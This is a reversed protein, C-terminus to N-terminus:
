RLSRLESRAMDAWEAIHGLARRLEALVADVTESSRRIRGARHMSIVFEMDGEIRDVAQDVLAIAYELSEEYGGEEELESVAAAIDGDAMDVDELHGDTLDVVRQLCSRAASLGDVDIEVLLSV